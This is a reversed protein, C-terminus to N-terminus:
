EEGKWHNCTGRSDTIPYEVSMLKANHVIYGAISGLTTCKGTYINVHSRTWYKCSECKEM